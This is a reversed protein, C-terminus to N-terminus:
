KTRKDEGNIKIVDCLGAIRSTIRDNFKVALEEISFNSTFIIPRMDNYRKNIILYFTDEVFETMKQAGLDDIFLLGEFNMLQYALSNELEVGKSIEGRILMLLETANYFKRQVILKEFPATFLSYALHTKGVGAGGWLYLGKRTELMSEFKQQIYEPVKHYYAEKYRAPVPNLIVQTM